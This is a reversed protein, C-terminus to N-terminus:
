NKTIIDHLKQKKKQGDHALKSMAKIVLEKLSMDKCRQEMSYIIKRKEMDPMLKCLSDLYNHPLKKRLKKFIPDVKRIVKGKQM